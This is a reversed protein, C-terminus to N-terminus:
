IIHLQRLFDRWIPELNPLAALQRPTRWALDNLEGNSRVAPPAEGTFAVTFIMWHHWNDGDVSGARRHCRDGGLRNLVLKLDRARVRLGTEEELERVGADRFYREEVRAGTPIRDRLEDVHGACPAVAIPTKARLGTLYRGNWDALVGVVAHNCPDGM